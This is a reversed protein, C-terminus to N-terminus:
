NALLLLVSLSEAYNNYETLLLLLNRLYFHQYTDCNVLAILKVGLIAIGEFYHLKAILNYFVTTVEM